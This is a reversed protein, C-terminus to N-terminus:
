ETNKEHHLRLAEWVLYENDSLTTPDIDNTDPNLTVCTESVLKLHAPLAADMVEGLSCAYYQALWDWFQLQAETVIPETDLILKIPKVQYAEPAQNHLKKVLASYRKRTGFPVEVRQGVRIVAQWELPIGYTFTQPIALPLIVDAYKM